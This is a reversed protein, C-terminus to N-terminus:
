LAEEYIKRLKRNREKVSFKGREVLKRGYKGMRKRLSSDEILSSTKKIMEKILKEGNTGVSYINLNNPREIVFGNKGDEVIEKRAFANVTVIPIVFSMAELLCFGFTDSFGPYVFIDSSPYIKQFLAEDSVSNYIKIFKEYKFKLQEPITLSIFTCDVDYKQKLRKFTELVFLGGKPYFYRGIFLLSIKKSKKQRLKPAPVAPYVVEIKNLVKSSKIVEKISNAAAYTWPLIKKCYERKLLKEILFKGVRSYSIKSSASFNFYHEVDVVWPKKNLLLCRACHVLDTNSFTFAINPLKIFELGSRLFKKIINRTIFIKPAIIVGIKQKSIGLFNVGEPPYNILNKYYPSDVFKWPFKLYVKM